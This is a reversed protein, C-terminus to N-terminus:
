PNAKERVDMTLMLGIAQNGVAGAVTVVARFIDGAAVAPDSITGQVATRVTTTNTISIDAAMITAFAGGATSKQIAITVTRSVDTAATAIYAKINLISGAGRAIYIWKSLAAIITAEGFLEIPVHYQQEFREAAFHTGLPHKIDNATLTGPLFLHNDLVAM